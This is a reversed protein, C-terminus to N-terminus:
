DSCTLKMTTISPGLASQVPFRVASAQRNTVPAWIKTREKSGRRRWSLAMGLWWNGIDETM